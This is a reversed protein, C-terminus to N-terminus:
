KVVVSTTTVSVSTTGHVVVAKKLVAAVVVLPLPPSLEPGDWGPEGNFVEPLGPPLPLEPLPGSPAAVAELVEFDGELGPYPPELVTAPDNIESVPFAVAEDDLCPVLGVATTM